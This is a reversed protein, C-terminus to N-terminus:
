NVVTDLLEGHEDLRVKLIKKSADTSYERQSSIGTLHGQLYKDQLTGSTSAESDNNACVCPCAAVTGNSMLNQHNESAM